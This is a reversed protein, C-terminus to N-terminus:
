EEDYAQRERTVMEIKHNVAIIDKSTKEITSKAKAEDENTKCITKQLIEFHESISEQDAIITSIENEIFKIENELRNHTLDLDERNTRAQNIDRKLGLLESRQNKSLTQSERLAKAAASLAQDRRNLAVLSSKWQQVLQKKELALLELASGTERLMKDAEETQQEQNKLQADTLAVNEELRKIQKNLSDIYVDQSTKGKELERVNEDAKYAARRTVAVEGKTGDNHKKLQRVTELIVVLEAESKTVSKQMKDVKSKKEQLTKKMDAIIFENDDRADIIASHKDSASELNKQLQALQHQMGYLEVGVDERRKKANRLADKRELLEGKVRENTRQLQDRLALQVRDMMPNQAFDEIMRDAVDGEDVSSIDGNEDSIQEAGVEDDIKTDGFDGMEGTANDTNREIKTNM